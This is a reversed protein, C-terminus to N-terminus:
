IAVEIKAIGGHNKYGTIVFDNVTLEFFPKKNVTLKPLEYQELDNHREIMLEVQEQHKNYMHLDQVFHTFVGVELDCEMAIAHQLAAYQVVNWGGAGAATLFDGSRQILTMHLKGDKVSLHTAYACEILSEKAKTQQDEANFMNMQIRRSTPNNKIENIVYHIQSPHGMTPKAIQHGYAKEIEGKENSWSDWIKSNLDNVNNSMLIFIWRMEDIAAEYNINRLSTIPFGKSLDYKNVVQLIRKTKVQTGDNWKARNDTEWEQNLIEQANDAYMQNIYNM